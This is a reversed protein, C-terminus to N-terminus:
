ATTILVEQPKHLYIMPSVTFNVCFSGYLNIIEPRVLCKILAKPSSIAVIDNGRRIGILDLKPSNRDTSLIVVTKLGCLQQLLSQHEQFDVIRYLEMYDVRRCFLGRECVLQENGVRYCIRRLCIFRYLLVLFLFLAIVTAMGGLPMGEMGGYVLGAMCMFILPLEDIVFQGAPQRLIINRVDQINYPMTM